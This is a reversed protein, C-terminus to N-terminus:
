TYIDTLRSFMMVYYVIKVRYNCKTTGGPDEYDEGFHYQWYWLNDPQAAPRGWFNEDVGIKTRNYNYIKATTMYRSVTKQSQSGALPGLSVYRANPSQALQNLDTITSSFDRDPKLVFGMSNASITDTASLTTNRLTFRIKSGFCIWSRYFQTFLQYGSVQEGSAEPDPEFPSNGVFYSSLLSNFSATRNCVYVM